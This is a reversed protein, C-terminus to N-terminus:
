RRKARATIDEIKKRVAQLSAALMQIADTQTAFHAQRPPQADVTMFMGKRIV